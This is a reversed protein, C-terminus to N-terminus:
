DSSKPQAKTNELLKLQQLYKKLDFGFKSIADDYNPDVFNKPIMGTLLTLYGNYGFRRIAQAVKIELADFRGVFRDILILVLDNTFFNNTREVDNFFHDFDSYPIISFNVLYISHLQNQWLEVIEPDDEILLIKQNM